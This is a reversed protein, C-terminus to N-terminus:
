LSIDITKYPDCSAMRLPYIVKKDDVSFVNIGPIHPNANEFKTIDRVKVPFNFGKPIKLEKEYPRLDHLTSDYKPKPHLYRLISWLFCKNDKNRISVIAKKRMIWDPLPIYSSGKIPNFQYTHIELYLVEKFYWGSGNLQYINLKQIIDRIADTVVKKVDTSKLNIYTNSHFYAKDEQIVELKFGGSRHEMMCVLVLTFKINRHNRFFEKLLEKNSAFFQLPLLGSEGKIKYMNVFGELASKERILGQDRERIAREIAKRLYPPADKPIKKNRICEEFYDDYNLKKKKKKPKPPKKIKSSVRTMKQNFKKLKKIDRIIKEKNQKAKNKEQKLIKKLEALPMKDYYKNAM